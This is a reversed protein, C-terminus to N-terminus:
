EFYLHCSDAFYSETSGGIGLSNQYKTLKSYDVKM